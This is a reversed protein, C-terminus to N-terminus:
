RAPFSPDHGPNDSSLNLAQNSIVLCDTLPGFKDIMPIFFDFRLNLSAQTKSQAALEDRVLSFHTLESRAPAVMWALSILQM